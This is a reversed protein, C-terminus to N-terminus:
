LKYCFLGALGRVRNETGSNNAATGTPTGGSTSSTTKSATGGQNTDGSSGYWNTGTNDGNAGRRSIGHATMTHQHTALANMNLNHPHPGIMEAAFSGLRRSADVGRANDWGRLWEARGDPLAIRKNAAFDAAADAGKTSPAGASTFIAADLVNLGWALAFLNATDANARTTAGSAASGITGGGEVWGAPATSRLFYDMKGPPVLANAVYALLSAFSFLHGTAKDASLGAIWHTDSPTTEAFGALDAVVSAAAAWARDTILPGTKKLLDGDVGGPPLGTGTGAILEVAIRDATTIIANAVATAASAVATAAASIAQATPSDNVNQVSNILKKLTPHWTLAKNAEYEPLTTDYDEVPYPLRFMRAMPEAIQQFRLMVKDFARSVVNSSRASASTTDNTLELDRRVEIYNDQDGIKTLLATKPTITFSTYDVGANLTVLYDTNQVALEHDDGFYVDVDSSIYLTWNCVIAVNAEVDEFREVTRDVPVAM